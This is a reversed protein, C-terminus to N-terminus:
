LDIDTLGALRRTVFTQLHESTRETSWSASIINTNAEM